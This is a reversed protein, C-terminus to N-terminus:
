KTSFNGNTYLEDSAKNGSRSNKVCSLALPRLCEQDPFIAVPFSEILADMAM